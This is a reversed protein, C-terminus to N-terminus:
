RRKANKVRKGELGLRYMEAAQESDLGFNRKITGIEEQTKKGAVYPELQRAVAASKRRAEISGDYRTGVFGEAIEETELREDFSMDSYATETTIEKTREAATAYDLGFADQVARINDENEMMEKQNKEIQKKQYEAEGMRARKLDARDPDNIVANTMNGVTNAGYKGGLAFGTAGYTVAKSLDGTTIGAALGVSAGIAGTAFGGAYRIANKGMKKVAKAGDRKLARKYIPAVRKAKDKLKGAGDMGKLAVGSAGKIVKKKAGNLTGKPDNKLRRLANGPTALAGGVNKKVGTWANSASNTLKDKTDGASTSLRTWADSRAKSITEGANEPNQNIAELTSRLGTKTDDGDDGGSKDGDPNDEGSLEKTPSQANQAYEKVSMGNEDSTVNPMRDRIGTTQGAKGGANGGNQGDGQSGKPPRGLLKQMGGMVAGAAVVNGLKGPTEAKGFNFMRRLIQEGQTMFTMVMICWIMNETAVEMASGILIVYLLLHMPQLLLNFIYEKLWFNFGQATGDNAKDIPYTVAVLPAIMTLFAMLIVRKFYMIAFMATYIILVIFMIAYGIYADSEGVYYDCNVRIAGMMNTTIMIYYTDGDDWTYACVESTASFVAGEYEDQDEYITAGADGLGEIMKDYKTKDESDFAFIPTYVRYSTSEVLNILYDNIKTAFIMIYHLTFLLILGILWDGLMQKYKAKDSAASSILIRIGIYVLVSLMAVIGIRLLIYYWKSVIGSLSYSLAYYGTTEGTTEDTSTVYYKTDSDFFNVDFLPIEGRFIEEPSISYVPINVQDGMGSSLIAVVGSVVNGGVATAIGVAAAVAVATVAAAIM